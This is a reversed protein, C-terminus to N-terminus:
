WLDSTALRSKVWRKNASVKIGWQVANQGGFTYTVGDEKIIEWHEDNHYYNIKWFLYNEAAFELVQSGNVSTTGTEILRNSTGKSLFYYDNSYLSASDHTDVVIQDYPLLWGMGLIGTPADLNWTNVTNQVHSDYLATITVDLGNRGPLSLLTFPFTIDGRFLNVGNQTNGINSFDLQFEQLATGDRSSVDDYGGM